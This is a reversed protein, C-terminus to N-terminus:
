SVSIERSLGWSRLASQRRRIWLSPWKVRPIHISSSKLATLESSSCTPSPRTVGPPWNRQWVTCRQWSGREETIAKHLLIAERAAHLPNEEPVPGQPPVGQLIRIAQDFQGLRELTQEDAIAEDPHVPEVHLVGLRGLANLLRDRDGMRSVVYIKSMPVIM